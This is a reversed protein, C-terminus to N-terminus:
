FGNLKWFDQFNNLYTKFPLHGQLQSIAFESFTCRQHLGLARREIRSLFKSAVQSRLHFLGECLVYRERRQECKLLHVKYSRCLHPYSYDRFSASLM